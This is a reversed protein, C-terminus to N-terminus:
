IFINNNSYFNFSSQYLENLIMYAKFYTLLKYFCGNKMNNM